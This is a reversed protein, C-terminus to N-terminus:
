TGGLREAMRDKVRAPFSIGTNRLYRQAGLNFTAMAVDYDTIGAAAAASVLLGVAQPLAEAFSALRAEGKVRPVVVGEPALHALQTWAPHVAWRSINGGDGRWVRRGCITWGASPM